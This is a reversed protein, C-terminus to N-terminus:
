KAFRKYLVCTRSIIDKIEATTVSTIVNTNTIREYIQMMLVVRSNGEAYCLVLAKEVQEEWMITTMNVYPSQIKIYILGDAFSFTITNL